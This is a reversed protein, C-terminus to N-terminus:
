LTINYGVSFLNAAKFCIQNKTLKQSHEQKKELYYNVVARKERALLLVRKPKDFKEM